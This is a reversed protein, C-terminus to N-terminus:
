PQEYLGGKKIADILRTVGIGGGCRPVFTLELFENLEQEVREKGFLDFNYQSLYFGFTVYALFMTSISIYFRNM